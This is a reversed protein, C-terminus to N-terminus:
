QGLARRANKGSELGKQISGITTDDQVLPAISTLAAATDAVKTTVLVLADPGIKELATVARMRVVRSELGEVRLGNANIADVHKARAVLTVNNKAALKAGYLSGIAGAGLVIIEM